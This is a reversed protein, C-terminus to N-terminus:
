CISHNKGLPYEGFVKYSNLQEEVSPLSEEKEKRLQELEAKMEEFQKKPVEITEMEM